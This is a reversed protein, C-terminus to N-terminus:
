RVLMFMWPHPQEFKSPRVSVTPPTARVQPCSGSVFAAVTVVVERHGRALEGPRAQVGPSISRKLNFILSQGATVPPGSSLAGPTRNMSLQRSSGPLTNVDGTWRDLYRSRHTDFLFSTVSAIASRDAREGGPTAASASGTSEGHYERSGNRASSARLRPCSSGSGNPAANTMVPRSPRLISTVSVRMASSSLGPWDILLKTSRPDGALDEVGVELEIGPHQREQIHVREDAVHM